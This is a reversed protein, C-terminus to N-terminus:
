NKVRGKNDIKRVEIRIDLSSTEYLDRNAVAALEFPGSQKAIDSQLREFDADNLGGGLEGDIPRMGKSIAKQRTDEVFKFFEMMPRRNDIRCSSVVENESFVKHVKWSELRLPAKQGYLCNQAALVRLGLVNPDSSLSNTISEVQEPDYDILIENVTIAKDGKEAAIANNRMITRINAEALLSTVASRTREYSLGGPITMHVIPEDVRWIFTGEALTRQLMDINQRLQAEQAKLKEVGVLLGRVPESLFAFVTLTILAVASGTCTTILISTYRPRLHLVSMKRKGIQRGLQNALYAIGAAIVAVLAYVVAIRLITYWSFSGM